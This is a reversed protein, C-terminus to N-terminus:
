LYVGAWKSNPTLGTLTTNDLDLTYYTTSSSISFDVAKLGNKGDTFVVKVGNGATLLSTTVTGIDL